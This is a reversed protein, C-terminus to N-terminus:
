VKKIIDNIEDKIKPTDYYKSVFIFFNIVNKDALDNDLLNLEESFFIVYDIIINCFNSGLLEILNKENKNSMSLFSINSKNFKQYKKNTKVLDDSNKSVNRKYFNHNENYINSYSRNNRKNDIKCENIYNNYLESNNNTTEEANLILDFSNREDSIEDNSDSNSLIGSINKTPKINNESHIRTEQVYEKSNLRSKNLFTAKKFIDKNLENWLITSIPIICIFLFELNLKSELLNFIDLINVRYFKTLNNSKQNIIEQLFYKIQGLIEFLFLVNGYDYDKLNIKNIYNKFSDKTLKYVADKKDEFILTDNSETNSLEESENKREEQDKIKEFINENNKTSYNEATSMSKKRFAYSKKSKINTYLPNDFEQSEKSFLFLSSSSYDNSSSNVFDYAKDISLKEFSFDWSVLQRLSSAMIKKDLDLDDEENYLNNIPARKKMITQWNKFTQFFDLFQEKKLKNIESFEESRSDYIDFSKIIKNLIILKDTLSDLNDDYSEEVINNLKEIEKELMTKLLYEQCQVISINFSLDAINFEIKLIIDEIEVQLIYEEKKKIKFENKRNLLTNMCTSILEKNKEPNSEFSELLNREEEIKIEVMKIKKYSAYLLYHHKRNYILSCFNIDEQSKIITNLELKSNDIYFVYIKNKFAVIIGENLILKVNIIELEPELGKFSNIEFLLVPKLSNNIFHYCYIVKNKKSCFLIYQNNYEIIDIKGELKSIIYCQFGNDYKLITNFNIIKVKKNYGAVLLKFDQFYISKMSTMYDDDKITKIVYSNKIINITKNEFVCVLFDNEWQIFKCNSKEDHKIELLLKKFFFLKTITNNIGLAMTIGEDSSPNMEFILDSGIINKTKNKKKITKIFNEMEVTAKDYKSKSLLKKASIIEDYSNLIFSDNETSVVIHKIEPCIAINLIKSRSKIEHSEERFKFSFKKNKKNEYEIM